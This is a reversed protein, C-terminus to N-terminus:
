DARRIRLDVKGTREEAERAIRELAIAWGAPYFTM